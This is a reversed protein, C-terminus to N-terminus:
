GQTVAANSIGGLEEFGKFLRWSDALIIVM